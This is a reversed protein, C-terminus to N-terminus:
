IDRSDIPAFDFNVSDDDAEIAGVAIARVLANATRRCNRRAVTKRVSLSESVGVGYYLHASRRAGRTCTTSM